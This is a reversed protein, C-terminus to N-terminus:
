SVELFVKPETDMINSKVEPFIEGKQLKEVFIPLEGDFPYTYADYVIGKAPCRTLVEPLEELIYYSLKKFDEESFLRTEDEVHNKVIGLVANRFLLNTGFLKYLYAVKEKYKEDTLDDWFAFIIKSNEEEPLENKLLKSTESMIEAGQKKAETRSYEVSRRKRVEINLAHISDAVYVIVNERTYELSWEVLGLINEPTFWKNGLSIGVGINYKKNELDETYGARIKYLQM